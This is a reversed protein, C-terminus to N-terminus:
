WPSVFSGDVIRLTRMLGLFSSSSTSMITLPTPAYGVKWHLILCGKGRVSGVIQSVDILARNEARESRADADCCCGIVCLLVPWFGSRM